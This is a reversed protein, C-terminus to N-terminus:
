KIYFICPIAYMIKFLMYFLHKKCRINYSTHVYISTEHTHIYIIIYTHTGSAKLGGGGATDGAM